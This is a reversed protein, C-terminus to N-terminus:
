DVYVFAKKRGCSACQGVVVGEDFFGPLGEEGEIRECEGVYFQRSGCECVPKEDRLRKRHAGTFGFISEEGGCESCCAIIVGKFDGEKSGTHHEIVVELPVLGCVPCKFLSFPHHDTPYRNASLCDKAFAELGSLYERGRM